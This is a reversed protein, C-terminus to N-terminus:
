ENGAEKRITSIREELYEGIFNPHLPILELEKVVEDAILAKIDTNLWESADLRGCSMCERYHKPISQPSNYWSWYHGEPADNPLNFCHAQSPQLEKSVEHPVSSDTTSNSM